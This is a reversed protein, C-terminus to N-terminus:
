VGVIYDGSAVQRLYVFNTTVQRRSSMDDGVEAKDSDLMWVKGSNMSVVITKRVGSASKFSQVRCIRLELRRDPFHLICKRTELPSAEELKEGAKRAFNYVEVLKKVAERSKRFNLWDSNGLLLELRYRGNASCRVLYTASEKIRLAMNQYQGSNKSQDLTAVYTYRGKMDGAALLVDDIYEHKGLAGGCDLVYYGRQVPCQLQLTDGDKVGAERCVYDVYEPNSLFRKIKESYAERQPGKSYSSFRSAGLPETEIIRHVGGIKVIISSM